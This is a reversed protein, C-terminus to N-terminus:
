TKLYTFYEELQKIACTFYKGDQSKKASSLAGEIVSVVYIALDKVNNHKIEKNIIANQLVKQITGEFSFYIRELSLKFDNDQHSLEQVLSNLRCGYTFNFSDLNNLVKFMSSIYNDNTELIKGYKKDMYGAVHVDIVSLVLEKKSKFYHYMTGKNLKAKKLIKDISSSYYGFEYIEEFTVLLLKEKSNM